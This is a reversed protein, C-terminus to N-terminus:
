QEPLVLVQDPFILNPDDGIVDVNTWYLKEVYSLVESPTADTELRAESIAWLSDGEVVTIDEEHNYTSDNNTNKTDNNNNDSTNNSYQDDTIDVDDTWVAYQHSTDNYQDPNNADNSSCGTVGILSCVATAALIEKYM